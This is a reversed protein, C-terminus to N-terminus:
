EKEAGAAREALGLTHRLRAAFEQPTLAISAEPIAFKGALRAHSEFGYSVIMPHIGASLAALYDKHEDGCAYARAPNVDLRERIDKFHGSKDETLPIYRLFDFRSLDLDHRAFLRRLTLEPERTVNRTVMGVRIDPADLLDALLADLGPYLRAEDRYIDTLSGILAKRTRKRVQRALNGPFERLGGLYKFLNHRKQFRELDGIDMGNRGFAADIAAFADILTGDADVIVLRDSSRYM